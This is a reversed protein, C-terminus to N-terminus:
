WCGIRQSSGIWFMYRKEPWRIQFVEPQVNNTEANNVTCIDYVNPQLIPRSSLCSQCEILNELILCHYTNTELWKKPCTLIGLPTLWMEQIFKWIYKLIRLRLQYTLIHQSSGSRKKNLRRLCKKYFHFKPTSEHDDRYTYM